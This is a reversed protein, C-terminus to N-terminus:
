ELKSRHRPFECSKPKNLHHSKPGDRQIDQNYGKIKDVKSGSTNKFVALWDDRYLSINNKDYKSAPINLVYIGVRECVEGWYYSRMMVDYM